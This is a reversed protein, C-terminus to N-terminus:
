PEINVEIIEGGELDLDEATEDENLKEGDFSFKVNDRQLGTKQLYRVVLLGMKETPLIKLLVPQSRREQTQLRVELGGGQEEQQALVVRARGHLVSAVSLGLSGVTQEGEVGQGGGEGRYLLLEGAELGVMKAVRYMVRGAKEERGAELKVVEAEEQSVGGVLRVSRAATSRVCASQSSPLPAGDRLAASFPGLCHAMNAARVESCALHTMDGWDVRATCQDYMHVLEHTLITQV